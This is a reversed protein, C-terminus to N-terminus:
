KMIVVFIPKASIIGGHNCSPILYQAKKYQQALCM